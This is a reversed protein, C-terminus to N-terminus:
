NKVYSNLCYIDYNCITIVSINNNTLERKILGEKELLKFFKLVTQRSVNWDSSRSMSSALLQGRELHVDRSYTPVTCGKPCADMVLDVWWKLAKPDTWLWHERLSVPLVIVQKDNTM